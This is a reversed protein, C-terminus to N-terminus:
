ITILLNPVASVASWDRHHGALELTEVKLHDHFSGVEIQVHFNSPRGGAAWVVSIRRMSLAGHPSSQRVVTGQEVLSRRAAAGGPGGV